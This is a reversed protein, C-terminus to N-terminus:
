TNYNVHIFDTETGPFIKDLCSSPTATSKSFNATASSTIFNGANLTRMFGNRYVRFSAM